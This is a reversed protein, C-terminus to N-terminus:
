EEPNQPKTDIVPNDWPGTVLYQRQTIKDLQKGVLKQAVFLAAGVAPGAAIAGALPISSTILPTVTVLQDFDKSALGIRGSIEIQAAPGKMEFNSTYADGQELYFSGNIRDFAFGKKLMDSFDLSLRRQLASLNLLGFIRGIGPDVDLFQGNELKLDFRGNVMNPSVDFPSGPWYLQTQIQADTKDLNRTFGLDELLTGFDKSILNSDLRTKQKLPEENIWSGTSEFTTSESTIKFQEIRMGQVDKQTLLIAQGYPKENIFLKDVVIDLAPLSAPDIPEAAPEPSAVTTDAEQELQALDVDLKLQDLRLNLPAVNYDDPISIEGSFHDSSGQGKWGADTHKLNLKLNKYATGKLIAEGFQVDIRNVPLEAKPPDTQTFRDLWADLPFQDWRGSLVIGPQRPPTAPQDGLHIRGSHIKLKDGETEKNLLFVTQLLNGYNVRLPQQPANNFRTSISLPRINDASKGLPEPLDVTIGHLNSSLKIAAQEGNQQSHHPIDLQLEWLSKGSFTSSDLEPYLSALKDSAVIGSGTIRTVGPEEDPTAVDVFIESDLARGKISKAHVRDLDFQLNGDIHTIPLKWDTLTLGSQKFTLQGDLRMKGQRLPIAFDLSTRSDGSGQLGATMKAFKDSLPSERLLRLTDGFPGEVQGSIEIETAPHLSQIQAHVGKLNSNYITGEEAWADFRNNLFRVKSNLKELRPWGPQYDLIADEIDFSVEFHGTENKDFPFDRLPGNFQCSGAIVHGSVISRDLWRVLDEKMVGVPYYKPAQTGDGDHFDTQLDLIPSSDPSAPLIFNARTRTKIDSNEAILEDSHIQWDGLENQQWSIEGQLQDLQLPNRFLDTFTIQLDHTDAAFRGSHNDLELRGSLNEIGPVRNWPKTSLREAQAEGQWYLGEETDELLLKLQRVDGKPQLVDLKENLAPLQIPSMPLMAALDELRLFGTSARIHRRDDPLTRWELTVQNEPWFSDPTAFQVKDLDLQWGDELRQWNFDGSLLKASFATPSLEEEDSDTARSLGLDQWRTNGSVETLLGDQWTSWFEANAVGQDIRYNLPLRYRLTKILDIQTGKVYLQGSWASPQNLQGTIDAAVRLRGKEQGPLTLTGGMQHRDSENRFTINVNSLHLPEGGVLENIWYVDGQQIQVKAPLLFLGGRSKASTDPRISEKGSDIGATSFSGDLHRIILLEPKVISIQRPSIGWKRLSDILALTIRIEPLKLSTTGTKPNLLSVDRLVLEPGLGRWEGSFEGVTVPQGIAQSALQEIDARFDSVMPILLRAVSIALASLIILLLTLAWIKATLSKFVRIM